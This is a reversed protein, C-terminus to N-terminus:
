SLKLAPGLCDRVQARNTFFSPEKDNKEIAQTYFDIASPWDHKSFAKNGENKLATAAEADSISTMPLCARLDSFLEHQILSPISRLFANM